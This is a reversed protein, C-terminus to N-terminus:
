QPSPDKYEKVIPLFRSLAKRQYLAVNSVTIAGCAAANDLNIRVGRINSLTLWRPYADVPVILVGNDATFRLSAAETSGTQEDGWWFAQIRPESNKKLCFFRVTTSYTIKLFQKIEFRWAKSM